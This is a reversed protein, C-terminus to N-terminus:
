RFRQDLKSIEEQSATLTVTATKGESNSLLIADDKSCLISRIRPKHPESLIRLALLIAKGELQKGPFVGQIDSVEISPLQSYEPLMRFGQFLIGYRDIFLTYSEDENKITIRAVPQREAVTFEVLSPRPRDIRVDIIQPTALLRERARAADLDQGPTLQAISLLQDRSLSGDTTYNIDTIVPGQRDETTHTINEGMKRFILHYFVIGSLGLLLLCAIYISLTRRTKPRFRRLQALLHLLDLKTDRGPRLQTANLRRLQRLSVPLIEESPLTATGVLVPIIPIQHTMAVELELRVFDQEPVDKGKDNAIRLWADGIIAIVVRCQRIADGLFNEFDVAVPIADIDLFVSGRGFQAELADRLVGVIYASDSRRYSLFIWPQRM